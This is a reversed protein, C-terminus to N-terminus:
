TSEALAAAAELSKLKAADADANLQVLPMGAKVQEGSQFHITLVTGAVEPALDAGRVARLTGVARDQTQWQEFGVKMTSVTQPPQGASMYKRIMKSKFAQFGFIGGFVVGTIVLMVVMRKIM